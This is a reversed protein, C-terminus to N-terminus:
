RLELRREIDDLHVHNLGEVETLMGRVEEWLEVRVEERLERRMAVEAERAGLDPLGEGPTRVEAHAAEARTEPVEVRVSAKEGEEGETEPAGCPAETLTERLFHRETLETLETLTERLSSPSPSPSQPEDDM